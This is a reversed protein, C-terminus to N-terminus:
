RAHGGIGGIAQPPLRWRKRKWTTWCSRGSTAAPTTVPGLTASSGVAFRMDKTLPALGISIWELCSGAPRMARACGSNALPPAGWREPGSVRITSAAPCSHSINRTSCPTRLSWYSGCDVFSVLFRGSLPPGRCRKPPSSLFRRARSTLAPRVGLCCSRLM